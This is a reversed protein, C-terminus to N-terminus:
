VLLLNKGWVMFRGFRYGCEIIIKPSHSIYRFGHTIQSIHVAQDFVDQGERVSDNGEGEEPVM